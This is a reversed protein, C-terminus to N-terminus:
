KTPGAIAGAQEAATVRDDSWGLVDRLIDHSHEGVQPPPSHLTTPADSFRLPTM